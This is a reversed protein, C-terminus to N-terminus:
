GRFKVREELKVLRLTKAASQGIKLTKVMWPTTIGVAANCTEMCGRYSFRKPYERLKFIECPNRVFSLAFRVLPMTELERKPLHEGIRLGGKNAKGELPQRTIACTPGTSISYVEDTAFKQLRQYYCPTFFIPCDMWEGTMGNHM